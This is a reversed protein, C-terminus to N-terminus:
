RLMKQLTILYIINMYQTLVVYKIFKHLKKNVSVLCARTKKKMLSLLNQRAQQSPSLRQNAPTKDDASDSDTIDIVHMDADSENTSEDPSTLLFNSNTKRASKKSVCEDSSDARFKRYHILRYPKTPSTGNEQDSEDSSTPPNKLPTKDHDSSGSSSIVPKRALHSQRRVRQSRRLSILQSVPPM